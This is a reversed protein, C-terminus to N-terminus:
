VHSTATTSNPTTASRPPARPPPLPAHLVHDQHMQHLHITNSPPHNFLKAGISTLTIPRTPSNGNAARPPGSRPASPAASPNPARLLRRQLPYEPRHQWLSPSPLDCVLALSRPPPRSHHASLISQHPFVFMSDNGGDELDHNMATRM